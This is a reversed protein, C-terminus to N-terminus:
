GLLIGTLPLRRMERLYDSRAQVNFGGTIKWDKDLGVNFHRVLEKGFHDGNIIRCTMELKGHGIYDRLRHKEYMAPYEGDPIRVLEDGVIECVPLEHHIPRHPDISFRKRNM